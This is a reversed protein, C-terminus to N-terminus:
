SSVAIQISKSGEPRPSEVANPVKIVVLLVLRVNLEDSPIPLSLALYHRRCLELTGERKSRKSSILTVHPIRKINVLTYFHHYTIILPEELCPTTALTGDLCLIYAYFTM